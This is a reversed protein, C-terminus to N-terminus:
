WEVPKPEALLEDLGLGLAAAVKVVTIIGPNPRRGQELSKVTDESLGAMAALREQSLRRRMRWFCVQMGLTWRRGRARGQTTM